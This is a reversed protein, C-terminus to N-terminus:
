VSHVTVGIGRFFHTLRESVGPGLCTVTTCRGGLAARVKPYVFRSAALHKGRLALNPGPGALARGYEVAVAEAAAFLGGRDEAYARRRAADLVEELLESGAVVVTPRFTGLDGATGLALTTRTYIGCLALVRAVHQAPPAAVLMANGAGFLHRHRAITSRVEGLLEGHTLGATAQDGARVALRRAHATGEDVAAGRATLGGLDPPSGDPDSVCGATWIAFEAVAWEYSAEPPSGVRDGPARGGAILGKAVGLVHTALERATVDLWSHDLHRRVSVADAFREANAWVMDTLSEEDTVSVGTSSVDVL